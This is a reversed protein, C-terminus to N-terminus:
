CAEVAAEDGGELQRGDGEGGGIGFRVEVEGVSCCVSGPRVGPRWRWSGGCREFEAGGMAARQVVESEEEAAGGAEIFGKM